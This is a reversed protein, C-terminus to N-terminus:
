ASGHNSQKADEIEDDDVDSNDGGDEADADNQGVPTAVTPAGILMGQDGAQADPEARRRWSRSNFKTLKNQRLLYAGHSQCQTRTRHPLMEHIKKWQCGHIAFAAAFVSEEEETWPARGREGRQKGRKKSKVIVGSLEGHAGSSSMSSTSATSKKSDRWHPPPVPAKPSAHSDPAVPSAGNGEFIEVLEKRYKSLLRDKDAADRRLDCTSLELQHYRDKYQSLEVRLQRNEELLLVRDEKEELEKGLVAAASRRKRKGVVVGPEYDLARVPADGSASAEPRVSAPAVAPRPPKLGLMHVKRKRFPPPADSVAPTPSSSDSGPPRLKPPNCIQEAGSADSLGRETAATSNDVIDM